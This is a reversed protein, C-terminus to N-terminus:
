ESNNGYCSTKKIKLELNEIHILDTFTQFPETQKGIRTEITVKTPKLKRKDFHLDVNDLLADELADVIPFLVPTFNKDIRDQTKYNANSQEAIILSVSCVFYIDTNDDWKTGEIPTVLWILPFRLAAYEPTAGMNKLSENVEALDGYMFNLSRNALESTRVAVAEMIEYIHRQRTM